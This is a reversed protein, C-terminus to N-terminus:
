SVSAGLNVSASTPTARTESLDKPKRAPQHARERAVLIEEDDKVEKVCRVISGPAFAWHEEEPDYDFTPLVRYVDGGLAEGQAPRMVPTGEELLEVYITKTNLVTEASM